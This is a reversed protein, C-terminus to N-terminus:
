CNIAYHNSSAVFWSGWSGQDMNHIRYTFHTNIVHAAGGCWSPIYWTVGNATTNTGFRGFTYQDANPPQPSIFIQYPNYSFDTWGTYYTGAGTTVSRRMDVQDVRSCNNFQAGFYLYSGNWGTPSMFFNCNAASAPAASAIGIFAFSCVALLAIRAILRRM